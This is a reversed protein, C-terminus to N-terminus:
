NVKGRMDIEWCAEVKGNQIIYFHDHLNITPDCHPVIIELVDGVKPLPVTKDATVKGHEDGFGAWEYHLGDHSIILPKTQPDFYISKTGADVTVHTPHNASIVTVLMTMAPVFYDFKNPNSHSGINQYEMDFVSYSGPQVETVEPLVLDIDYTGTGSGTLIECPLDHALFSQKLRGAKVMIDTSAQKRAQFDAIHQLNGAYCQIGRLNLSSCQKHIYEGLSLANEFTVGTRGIGSDVDVLVNLALSYKAMAQNLKTANELSDCVVLLRDDHQRCKLLVEIKQSTVVPSTILTGKIGKEVLVLAESVKAACVGIAGYKLQLKALETSKHTKIHPRLNKGVSDVQNQMKKLNVILKDHDIVLCPTDLEFKNM